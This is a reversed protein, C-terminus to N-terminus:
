LTVLAATFIHAGGFQETHKKVLRKLLAPKVGAKQLDAVLAATDVRPAQPVVKLNITVTAGAYVTESTGVPYPEALHDRLVGGTVAAKKAKERRADAFRSLLSASWYEEALRDRASRSGPPYGIDGFAEAILQTVGTRGLTKGSTKLTDLPM